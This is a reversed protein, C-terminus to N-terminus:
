KNRKRSKKVDEEVMEMEEDEIYEVEEITEVPNSEGSTAQNLYLSSTTAKKYSDIARLLGNTLEFNQARLVMQSSSRRWMKNEYRSVIIGFAATQRIVDTETSPIVALRAAASETEVSYLMLDGYNEKNPLNIEWTDNSSKLIFKEEMNGSSPMLVIRAIFTRDIYATKEENTQVIFTLQDGANLELANCVDQYTLQTIPIYGGSSDKAPISFMPAQYNNWVSTFRNFTAEVGNLDGESIIYENIVPQTDDKINWNGVGLNKVVIPSWSEINDLIMERLMKINLKMYRQHNKMKGEFGQFAHDCVTVVESYSKVATAVAIRQVIQANTQPNMPRVRTRFRQEGGVRYFVIGGLKGRATGLM